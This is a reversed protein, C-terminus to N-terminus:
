LRTKIKLKLDEIALEPFNLEQVIRLLANERAIKKRCHESKARWLCKLDAM